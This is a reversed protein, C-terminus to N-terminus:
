KGQKVHPSKPPHGFSGRGGLFSSNNNCCSINWCYFLLWSTCMLFCVSGASWFCLAVVQGAPLAAMPSLAQCSLAKIPLVWTCSMMGILDQLLSFPFTVSVGVTWSSARPDRCVNVSKCCQKPWSAFLVVDNFISIGSYFVGKEVLTTSTM